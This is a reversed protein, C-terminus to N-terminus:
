DVDSNDQLESETEVKVNQESIIEVDNDSERLKRSNFKKVHAVNRKFTKGDSNKITVNDSSRDTVKYKINEYEPSLKDQKVVKLLITDSPKLNNEKAKNQSDYREKSKLKRWADRDRIAKDLNTTGRLEPMKTKLKRGFMLEAPSVGISAQSTSRYMLFYDLIEQKWDKKELQAIKLRKLLNRNQREVEGNAQPWYLTVHVLKIGCRSTWEHIEKSALQKGNDSILTYPYGYRAFISKLRHIIAASSISRM